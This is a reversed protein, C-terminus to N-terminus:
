RSQPIGTPHLTGDPAIALTADKGETFRAKVHLIKSFYSMRNLPAMWLPMVWDPVASEAIPRLAATQISDHLRNVYAEIRGDDEAWILPVSLSCRLLLAFAVAAAPALQVWRRVASEVDQPAPLTMMMCAIFFVFSDAHHRSITATDYGFGVFRASGIAAAGFAFQAAFGAWIIATRYDRRISLVAPIVLLV